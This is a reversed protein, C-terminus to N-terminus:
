VEGVKLAGKGPSAALGARLTDMVLKTAAPDVAPRGTEVQDLFASVTRRFASFNDSIKYSEILGMGDGTGSGFVDLLFCVPRWGLADISLCAGGELHVSLSDHPALNRAVAIPKLDLASMAAELMHVGYRTWDNVVAARVLKLEGFRERSQRLPDLERAYRLGSCSMLQGSELYPMFAALEAKSATLPKDIFVKLGAQLFPMALPMHSDWDDRLIMVADVENRMDHPEYVVNDIRCAAQLTRAMNADPMWCHTVKARGGFGIEEPKRAELYNRIGAWEDPFADAEYGNVIASFSFPHGNGPSFGLTGIKIM